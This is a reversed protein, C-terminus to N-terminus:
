PEPSRDPEEVLRQLESRPIFREISAEPNTLAAGTASLGSAWEIGGDATRRRLRNFEKDAAQLKTRLTAESPKFWGFLFGGPGCGSLTDLFAGYRETLERFEAPEAIGLGKVKLSLRVALDPIWPQKRLRILDSLKLVPPVKEGTKVGLEEPRVDLLRRLADIQETYLEAGARKVQTQEALWLDWAKEMDRASSKGILAQALWEPTVPEGNALRAFMGGFLEGPRPQSALWEFALGCFAKESWRGEPLVEFNLLEALPLSDGQTWYRLVVRSNRARLEPFLQQSLGASLWDPVAGLRANRQVADQRAIVYRNLLLWCLGELVDEQDAAAPNFVILKQALSRDM